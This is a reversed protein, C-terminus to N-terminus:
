GSYLMKAGQPPERANKSVNLAVLMPCHGCANQWRSDPHCVVSLPSARLADAARGSRKVGAGVLMQTREATRNWVTVRRGASLFARALASGMLGMGLVSVDSM